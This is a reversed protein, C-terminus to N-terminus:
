RGYKSEFVNDFSCVSIPSIKTITESTIDYTAVYYYFNYESNNNSEKDLKTDLATLFIFDISKNTGISDIQLLIDKCVDGTVQKKLDDPLRTLSYFINDKNYIDNILIKYRKDQTAIFAEGTILNELIIIDTNYHMFDGEGAFSAVASVIYYDNNGKTIFLPLFTQGYYEDVKITKTLLKNVINSKTSGKPTEMRFFNSAEDPSAEPIIITCYREWDSYKGNNIFEKFSNNTFEAYAIIGSHSKNRFIITIPYGFNLIDKSINKLDYTEKMMDDINPSSSSNFINIDLKIEAPIGTFNYYQNWDANQDVIYDISLFVNNLDISKLKNALNIFKGDNFIKTSGDYTNIYRLGSWPSIQDNYMIATLFRREQWNETGVELEFGSKDAIPVYNSWTACIGAECLLTCDELVINKCSGENLGDGIQLPGGSFICGKFTADETLFLDINQHFNEVHTNTCILQNVKNLKIGSGEFDNYQNQLASVKCHDITIAQSNTFQLIGDWGNDVDKFSLNSIDVNICNDFMLPTDFNIYDKGSEPMGTITLNSINSIAKVEETTIYKGPLLVIERNSGIKKVLEEYNKVEYCEKSTQTIKSSESPATTTPQIEATVVSNNLIPKETNDIYFSQTTTATNSNNNQCGALILFYFVISVLFLRNKM